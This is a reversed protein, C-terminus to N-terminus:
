RAFDLPGCAAPERNSMTGSVVFMGAEKGTLKAIREELARTSSDENYVDDGRSAQLGAESQPSRLALPFSSPM